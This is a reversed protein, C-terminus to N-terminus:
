KRFQGPTVGLVKRFIRSMHFENAFGSSEAVAKLPLETQRILDRAAEARIRRLDDMPTHGTLMKYTRLFHFKSMHAANALTELSLNERLHDHMFQQTMRVRDPV